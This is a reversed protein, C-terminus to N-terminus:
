EELGVATLAGAHDFFWEVRSVRGDRISYVSSLSRSMHAGSAVGLGGWEGRHVVRGDDVEFLELTSVPKTAAVWATALGELWSRVADRGRMPMSLAQADPVFEVDPAYTDLLGDFDGRNVADFGKAVVGVNEQSMAQEELGLDALANAREGYIALRVVKGDRLHFTTTVEAARRELAIGSLKARAISLAFVLVCDDGCERCAVLKTRYDEWQRLFTAWGEAMGAIGTWRNPAELGDGYVLEIAPDAWAVSSFDGREWDAYISRVVDLNESM